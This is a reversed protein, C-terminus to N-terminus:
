VKEKHDTVPDHPTSQASIKDAWRDAFRTLTVVGAILLVFGIIGNVVDGSVIDLRVALSIIGTILMGIGLGLKRNEKAGDSVVSIGGLILVMPLVALYVDNSDFVDILTALLVFGLGVSVVGVALNTIKQKKM